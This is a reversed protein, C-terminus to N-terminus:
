VAAGESVKLSESNCQKEFPSDAFLDPHVQRIVQRHKPSALSLPSTHAHTNATHTRHTPSPAHTHASAHDSSSLCLASLLTKLM